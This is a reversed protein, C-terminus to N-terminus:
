LITLSLTLISTTGPESVTLRSASAKPSCSIMRAAPASHRSGPHEMHRPIFPSVASGPSTTTEVLLRLKSPRCPGPARVMSALGAVAAALAIAPTTASGRSNSFPSPRVIKAPWPHDPRQRRFLDMCELASQRKCGADGLRGY